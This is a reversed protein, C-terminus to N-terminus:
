AATIGAGMLVLKVVMVGEGSSSEEGSVSEAEVLEERVVEGGEGHRLVGGSSTVRPAGCLSAPFGPTYAESTRTRRPDSELWTEGM